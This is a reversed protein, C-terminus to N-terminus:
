DQVISNKLTLILSLSSLLMFSSLLREGAAISGPEAPAFNLSSLYLCSNVINLYYQLDIRILGGRVVCKLLIKWILNRLDNM